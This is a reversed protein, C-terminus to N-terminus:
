MLYLILAVCMVFSVVISGVIAVREVENERQAPSLAEWRAREARAAEKKKTKKEIQAASKDPGGIIPYDWFRRWLSARVRKKQEPFGMSWRLLSRFSDDQSYYNYRVM